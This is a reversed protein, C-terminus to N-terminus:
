EEYGYVQCCRIFTGATFSLVGTFSLTKGSKITMNLPIIITDKEATLTTTPIEILYKQSEDVYSLSINGTAADCDASKTYSFIIKTLHTDKDFSMIAVSSASTTNRTLSKIPAEYMDVPINAIIDIDNDMFDSQTHFKSM